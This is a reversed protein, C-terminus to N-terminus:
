FNIYINDIDSIQILEHNGNKYSCLIYKHYIRIFSCLGESVMNQISLLFERLTMVQAGREDFKEM